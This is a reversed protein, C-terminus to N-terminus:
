RRVGSPNFLTYSSDAYRKYPLGYCLWHNKNYQYGIIKTLSNKLISRVPDNAKLWDWEFERNESSCGSILANAEPAQVVPMGQRCSSIPPGPVQQQPPQQNPNIGKMFPDEGMRKCSKLYKTFIKSLHMICTLIEDLCEAFFESLGLKEHQALLKVALHPTMFFIKEKNEKLMNQREPANINGQPQAMGPQMGQAGIPIGTGPTPIRPDEDRNKDFQRVEGKFNSFELKIHNALAPYLDSAVHGPFAEALLVYFKIIGEIVLPHKQQIPQEMKGGWKCSFVIKLADLIRRLNEEIKDKRYYKLLVRVTNLMTLHVISEKNLNHVTAKDISASIKFVIGPNNVLISKFLALCKYTLEPPDKDLSDDSSLISHLFFLEKFLCSLIIEKIQNEMEKVRSEAIDISCWSLMTKAIDFASSKYYHQQGFFFIKQFAQIMRSYLSSKYPKFADPNRVVMSFVNHLTHLAANSTRMAKELIILNQDIANSSGPPYLVPVLTDIAENIIEKYEGMPEM